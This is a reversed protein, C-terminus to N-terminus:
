EASDVLSGFGELMSQSMVCRSTERSSSLKRLKRPFCWTGRSAFTTSRYPGFPLPFDFMRWASSSAIVARDRVKLRKFIIVRSAKPMNPGLGGCRDCDMEGVLNRLFDPDVTLDIM